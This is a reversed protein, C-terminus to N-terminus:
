AKAATARVKRAQAWTAANRKGAAAQAGQAAGTAVAGTGSHLLATVQAGSTAPYTNGRGVGQGANRGAYQRLTRGVKVVNARTTPMGLAQCTAMAWQPMSRPTGKHQAALRLCTAVYANSHHQVTSTSGAPAPTTTSGMTTGRQPYHARGM